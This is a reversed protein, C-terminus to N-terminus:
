SRFCRGGLSEPRALGGVMDPSFAGPYRDVDCAYRALAVTCPIQLVARGSHGREDVLLFGRGRAIDISIRTSKRWVHDAPQITRFTEANTAKPASPKRSRRRRPRAPTAPNPM